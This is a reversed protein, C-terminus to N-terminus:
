GGREEELDELRSLVEERDNYDMDKDLAMKYIREAKDYDVPINPNMRFLWYMDGWGIYGWINNPFEQILAQFLMEGQELMGLALYSEAEARKMNHITLKSAKPFLTYFERCYQIRKEYFSANDLGANGLEMELDQCWNFLSQMGSFVREAEEISQMDPTFRERLQEWVELWLTCAEATRREELLDYGKQMKDDLQESSVVDPVLREWLVIAAMWIFDVDFWRATIPYVEKWHNALDGASYFNRVDKRFQGKDFDVGFSRLKQIIRRTSLSNIERVSWHRDRMKDGNNSVSHSRM